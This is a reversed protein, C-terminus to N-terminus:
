PTTKRRQRKETKCQLSHGSMEGLPLPFKGVLMKKGCRRNKKRVPMKTEWGLFFFELRCFTKTGVSMGGGGRPGLPNLERRQRKATKCELSHGSMEQFLLPFEGVSMKKGVSLKKEGVLLFIGCGVVKTKWIVFKKGGGIPGLPKKEADATKRDQMGPFAWVNGPIAPCIRWGVSKEWGVIKKWGVTKKGLRCNKKREM